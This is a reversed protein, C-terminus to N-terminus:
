CVDEGDGGNRYAWHYTTPRRTRRADRGSTDYRLFTYVLLHKNLDLVNLLRVVTQTWVLKCGPFSLSCVFLSIEHQVPGYM